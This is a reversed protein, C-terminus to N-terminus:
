LAGFNQGTVSAGNVILTLTSPLFSYGTKSPIINYTGDQLGSFRYFGNSDSITIGSGSGFLTLTVGSLGTGNGSITITGSISNGDIGSQNGNEEVGGCASLGAAVFFLGLILNILEKRMDYGEYKLNV